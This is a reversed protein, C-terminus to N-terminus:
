SGDRERRLEILRRAVDRAIELTGERHDPGAGIKSRQESTASLRGRAIVGRFKCTM